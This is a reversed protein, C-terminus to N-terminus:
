AADREVPLLYRHLFQKTKLEVQRV